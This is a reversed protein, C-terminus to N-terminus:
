TSSCTLAHLVRTKCFTKWHDRIIAKAVEKIYDDDDSEVSGIGPVDPDFGDLDLDDTNIEDGDSDCVRVTVYAYYWDDDLWAQFRRIEQWVAAEAIEGRTPPRNYKKQTLAILENMEKEPPRAGEVRANAVAGQFDYYYVTSYSRRAYMRVEGPEKGDYYRTTNHSGRVSGLPEYDDWPSEPCDDHELYINFKIDDVVITDHHYEYSM